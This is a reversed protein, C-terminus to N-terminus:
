CVPGEGNSRLVSVGSEEILQLMGSLRIGIRLQTGLCQARQRM